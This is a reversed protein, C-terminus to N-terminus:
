ASVIIEWATLLAEEVALDPIGPATIAYLTSRPADVRTVTSRPREFLPPSRAPTTSSRARRRAAARRDLRDADLAWVGVETDVTAILLADRLM